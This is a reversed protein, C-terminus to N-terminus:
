SRAAKVAADVDAENAEAVEALQEETSPSHTAFYKGSSPAVWKGGVFLEYRPQLHVHDTAEPSPAYTWANGFALGLPSAGSAPGSAAAASPGDGGESPRTASRPAPERQ